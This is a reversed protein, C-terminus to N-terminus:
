VLLARIEGRRGQAVGAPIARGNATEDHPESAYHCADGCVVRRYKNRLPVAITRLELETQQDSLCFDQTRIKVATKEARRRQHITHATFPKLDVTRFFADIAPQPLHALLVADWRRATHRGAHASTEWCPPWGSTPPVPLCLHSGNRSPDFRLLVRRTALQGARRLSAHGPAASEVVFLGTALTLVRRALRFFIETRKSM